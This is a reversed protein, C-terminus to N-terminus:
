SKVRPNKCAGVSKRAAVYQIRSYISFTLYWEHPQLEAESPLEKAISFIRVLNKKKRKPNQSLSSFFFMYNPFLSRVSSHITVNRASWPLSSSSSSTNIHIRSLSHSIAFPSKSTCVRSIFNFSSREAAHEIKKKKKIGKSKQIRSFIIKRERVRRLAVSM